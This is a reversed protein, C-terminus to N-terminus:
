RGLIKLCARFLKNQGANAVITELEGADLWLGRCSPCVDMEVSGQKEMALEQGCKPCHMWHLQKLQEREAQAKARQEKELKELRRSMEHLRVHEDEIKSPKIPM